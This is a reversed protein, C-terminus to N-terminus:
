HKLQPKSKLSINESGYKARIENLDQSQGKSSGAKNEETRFYWAKKKPAFFFLADKLTKRHVYTEGTCWLWTGVLEVIIGTLNIVAEIAKVYAESQLIEDHAQEATFAGEKVIKAIIFSYEANIDQMTAVNGGRDPHHMKALEKYRTKVDQLTLCNNFFKM